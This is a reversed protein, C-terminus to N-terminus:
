RSDPIMPAIELFLLKKSLFNRKADGIPHKKSLHEEWRESPGNELLIMNKVFIDAERGRGPSREISPGGERTPRVRITPIQSIRKALLEEDGCM